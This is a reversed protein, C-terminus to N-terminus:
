QDRSPITEIVDWHEVIKGHEMRFLDYFESPSPPSQATHFRGAGPHFRETPSARHTQPPEATPIRHEPALAAKAPWSAQVPLFTRLPM